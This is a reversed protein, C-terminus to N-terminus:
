LGSAALAAEQEQMWARAAGPVEELTEVHVWVWRTHGANIYVQGSLAVTRGFTDLRVLFGTRRRLLDAIKEMGEEHARDPDPFEDHMLSQATEAIEPLSRYLPSAPDEPLQQMFQEEFDEPFHDEQRVGLSWPIPICKGVWVMSQFMEERAEAVSESM